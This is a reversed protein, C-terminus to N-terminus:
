IGESLKTKIAELAIDPTDANLVATEMPCYGTKNRNIIAEVMDDYYIDINYKKFVDYAPKSIVGAYVAKIELLVYLYAAAKGVVKDAAYGDKLDTKNNYWDLLPKVGRSRSKYQHNDKLIVCTYNNETLIEKARNLTNKM